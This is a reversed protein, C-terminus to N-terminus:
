NNNDSLGQNSHMHNNLIYVTVPRLKSKPDPPYVGNSTFFEYRNNRKIYWLRGMSNLTITDPRTVKKMTHFTVSDYAVVLTDLGFRTNCSVQKYQDGAWYMCSESGMLGNRFDNRGWWGYIWNGATALGVFALVSIIIFKFHQNGYGWTLIGPKEKVATDKEHGESGKKYLGTTEEAVLTSTAKGTPAYRKGFVYPRPQFDILWALLEVNKKDTTTTKSKLYKILPRFISIDCNSIKRESFAENEKVDFFVRLTAEDKRGNRVSYVALCEDRLSAPTPYILRPSIENLTLKQHFYAVVLSEYDQFM